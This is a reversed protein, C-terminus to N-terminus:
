FGRRLETTKPGFRHDAECACRRYRPVIGGHIPKLPEQEREHSQQHAEGDQCQVCSPQRASAAAESRSHSIGGDGGICYRLMAVRREYLGAAAAIMIPRLM